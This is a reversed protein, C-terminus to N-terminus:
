MVLKPNTLLGLKFYDYSHVQLSYIYSFSIFNKMLTNEAIGGPKV